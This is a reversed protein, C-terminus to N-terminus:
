IELRPRGSLPKVNFKDFIAQIEDYELEEKKLLEEAFYNFLDRHQTLINRVDAISERLINQVDEELLEKTKDSLMNEKGDYALYSRFDGVLGSKGMGFSWAMNRAVNLAHAFDASPSGGVGTSTSGFTIEEAVYSAIFMKIEAILEEKNSSYYEVPPRNQVFGLFGKRPIITAKVIDDKPHLLYGLIAHGTEHYATWRKEEPTMKINSKNGYTVRDYAESLDKMNITERKERLAIIAAERVVSDVDSPTYWLSRRALIDSTVSPDTAVKKLYFDFLEKREKLNPRSVHIKRDFRGSRMIASDLAEEGFNTAAIIIINNEAKRLGDLETLFQNITANHSIGGGFGTDAMRPRAFSDIEDIFIICGGHIEATARAQSFLSKMQAAGQGVFIGVFESGSVSLMPLGCETAIAKALYTKGCGPPGIMLTGKVIKGGIKKVLHRDKLLKVIEWAEEKATEMGIVENWKVNVKAAGIKERGLRGFLGGSMMFYQAGQMLGVFVFAQVIGMMLYMGMMAQMQKKNFSELGLFTSFGSVLLAVILFILSSIILLAVIRLWYIKLYILFKKM